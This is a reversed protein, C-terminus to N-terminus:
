VTGWGEQINVPIKCVSRRSESFDRSRSALLLLFFFYFFLVTLTVLGSAARPASTLAAHSSMLAFLDYRGEEEEEERILQGEPRTVAVLVCSLSFFLLLEM